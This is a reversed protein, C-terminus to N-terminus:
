RSASYKVGVVTTLILPFLVGLFLMLFEEKLRRFRKPRSMSHIAVCM